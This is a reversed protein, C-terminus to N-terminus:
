APLPLRVTFVSGEGVTSAVEIRGGHRQVIREAITLGLGTGPLAHAEPNSSRDFPVFLNALDGEAIGLGTDRCELEAENGARRVTLEVSGGHPTYKVANGVLNDVVRVLEPVNGLVMVPVDPENLALTVSTSEATVRVLELSSRCLDTLDVKERPGDAPINDLRSFSLVDEVMRSLRHVNANIANVSRESAGQDGLMEAHGLIATLPGKLEHTLTATLEAKYHDLEQLETVLRRERAFLRAQHMTRGLERGMELACDIEAETWAPVAEDRM